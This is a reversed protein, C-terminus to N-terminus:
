NFNFIKIFQKSKIRLRDDPKKIVVADNKLSKNVLTNAGIFCRSGLKINHSILSGGAIFTNSGVICSGMIKSGATIWSNKKIISHHCIISGGWVFVNDEIIVNPHIVSGKMLFCNNGIKLSQNKKHSKHIFSITKYGKRKVNRITKQRFDNLEQYGVAVFFFYKSPNFKKEITEFDHNPLKLFTNKKKFKKEVCFCEIEYRFDDDELMSNYVAEAIKGNGFIILKKM